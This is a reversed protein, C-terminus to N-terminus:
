RDLEPASYIITNNGATILIRGDLLAMRRPAMELQLAHSSRLMASQADLLHLSYVSQGGASRGGVMGTEITVFFQESLIPHLMGGGEGGGLHSLGDIGTLRGARDFILVGRDTTFATRSLDPGLRLARVQSRGVLHDYTELPRDLPQGTELPALHLMRYDDLIFVRDGMVWADRSGFAPGGPMSWNVGATLLDFSVIEAELGALLAGGAVGGGGGAGGAVGAAGPAMRLWRVQGGLQDLKHMEEGSRPDFVVIMNAAAALAGADDERTAAGGIVVVGAAADLDHVRTIPTRASWLLRGNAPDFAALRGSREAVVIVQEDLSVLVDTLRVAGDIPTVISNRTQRLRDALTPDPVFFTRVDETKWRTEGSITNIREIAPGAAGSTRDWFLYASDPDLRLLIPPSGRYARSWLLQLHARSGTGPVDGAAGPLGWLAVKGESSNVLMVHECARSHNQSRANMIAWGPLPQTERQLEPGIRPLRELAALRGLLDAALREADLARGKQSIVLDPYQTRLRGILQAAAFFQELEELRVILQGAVDGFIGGELPVGALHAHEAAALAERLAAVAAHTRGAGEHLDAARAWMTASAAAGPYRRALREFEAAPAAAPIARLELGAQAEFAAYAAPGRERVLQRIRRSSELEARVTVGPGRWVTAALPGEALIQQYAEAAQAFQSQAERMRGLVMLHSVREEPSRAARGLREIIHAMVPLDLPPFESPRRPRAVAPRAARGALMERTMGQPAGPAEAQAAGAANEARASADNNWRQQTTEVMHRLVAFLRQRAQDAQERAPAEAARGREIAALARDAAGAIQDHRRARYALEAYTIAPHPDAPHLRMRDSLLRHAVEWSLFSHITQSDVVLVQDGVALLNGTRELRMVPAQEAAPAAPDIVAVGDLRPVLLSTGAVVVRGIIGPPGFRNTRRPTGRELESLPITAIQDSGIAALRDGARLLYAPSGLASAPRRTLIEGTDRDLRLIERRDPSLVILADGDAIPMGWQWPKGSEPMGTLTSAPVPARRIWIPRGTAAEVAAIVGLPDGCYVVGENLLSVPSVRTEGRSWPIAGASAIPRLWQLSGDRVSLGVLYLSTIRRGPASKRASLIVTGGDIMAPGRVSAGDLQPDLSRLMASWVIRGTEADIAYTAGDGQRDGAQAFGMTAILLRGHVTVTSSDEVLRGSGLRMAERRAAWAEVNAGGGMVDADVRFAGADAHSAMPQLSWRPQLTFRDRASIYTGDNIYVTDGVVTPLVWLNDQQDASLEQPGLSEYVELPLAQPELTTSWLPSTPVAAADTRPGPHLFDTIPARLIAPAEVAERPPPPAEPDARKSWQDARAWVAPRDLYRAVQHLMAAAERAPRSAPRRDPHDELQELALRAAEFRGSELHLQALRLAAEFGAPTLLRSREVRAAASELGRAAAEGNAAREAGELEQQARASEIQRYRELAAPNALLFQHARERVSIFVDPRGPQLVLRDPQEDLLRQLERVAEAINGATIFEAVRGFTEAAVPSDDTYVPNTQNQAAAPVPGLIGVGICLVAPLAAALVAGWSRPRALGARGASHRFSPPTLPITTM